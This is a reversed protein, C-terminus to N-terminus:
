DFDADHDSADGTLDIIEPKPLPNHGAQKSLCAAWFDDAHEDGSQTTDYRINNSATVVKKISHFSERAEPDDPVRTKVDQMLALQRSAMQDKSASTFKVKEVRHTGFRKQLSEVLMDGIGTADGCARVIDYKNILDEAMQQQLGYKAKRMRVIERCVMVDGVLEDIWFVTKHHERAIDFGMYKPGDGITNLCNDDQCKYYLDYPILTSAESSPVCMYERNFKDLSRARARCERLFKKRVEPDVHDLKKIKEALGQEVAVTIPVYHYSWPLVIDVDPNLDGSIIKKAEKVLQDFMSNEYSRTTLISLSFGWMTCPEAASYMEEANDHWDFEDLCVDGGKSRFRRPNSSMCNIRSDNHPFRVVYNTKKVVKGDVIDDYPEDFCEHVAETIECWTRCYEAFEFAASEDASSFWYDRKKKILNRDRVAKFSEAYTAGIRRSKDWLKCNSEDLIWKNQYPLFYGSPITDHKTTV